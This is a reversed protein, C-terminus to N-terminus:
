GDPFLNIIYVLVKDVAVAEADGYYAGVIIVEPNALYLARENWKWEYPPEYIVTKPIYEYTRDSVYIEVRKILSENSAAVKITIGGIIFTKGLPLIERDFIYLYGEKPKEIKVSIPPSDSCRAVWVRFERKVNGDRPIIKTIAGAVIYSDEECIVGRGWDTGRSGFTKNWIENGEKDIKLLWIDFIGVSLTYSDTTGAIIFGDKTEKIDHGIEVGKEGYRRSWVEKGNKDVKILLIDNWGTPTSTTEGMILYGDSVKLLDYSWEMDWYGYTKNWIENGERDIKILWIDWGGNGYSSTFGSVIYGDETELIRSAGESKGWTGYTRNWVENGQSDLKVVWVDGRLDFTETEGVMIYGDDSTKIIDKGFDSRKGGYTKNWIERGDKDVKIIWFDAGGNGYSETYGGVIYGDEVEIIKYGIDEKCGGYTKNWIENGEKDIKLLFADFDYDKGIYYGTLLYGDRTKLIDEAVGAMYTKSWEKSEKEGACHLHNMALTSLLILVPIGLSILKMSSKMSVTGM